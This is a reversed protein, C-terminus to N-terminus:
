RFDKILVVGTTEVSRTAVPRNGRSWDFAVVPLRTVKMSQFAPAPRPARETDPHVSLRFIAYVLAAVSVFVVVAILVAARVPHGDSAPAASTSSSPATTVQTTTPLTTEVSFRYGRRPVTEVYPKGGKAEGLAKRLTFVNQALTAEGVFTDPWIEKLLEEKSMVRGAGRVLALLTEFEKPTLHVPEGERMLVREASDLSYPGFEYLHKAPSTM